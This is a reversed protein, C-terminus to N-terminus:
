KRYVLISPRSIGCDCVASLGTARHLLAVCCDHSVLFVLLAFCGARGRERKGMSIVAFSSHACFLARCFMSYNCFGVIPTVILLSDVAQSCILITSKSHIKIICFVCLHVVLEREIKGMLIIAFSSHVCLLACCFM